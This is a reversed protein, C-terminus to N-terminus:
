VIIGNCPLSLTRNTEKVEEFPEDKLRSEKSPVPTSWDYKHDIVMGIEAVMENFLGELYRYDPTQDFKLSRCYTLYSQFQRPLDVCLKDFTTTLKKEMIKQYKQRRTDAQLNQWPLKGKLFYVLVYGLSELDDRRSLELGLHANLSAYRATGTLSKDDRYPIHSGDNSIYKKALGFDIVFVTSKTRGTGMLFNDPKIDRHLVQRSHLYELQKLMQLGLMITCKLSFRRSCENFLDELSSGLIEMAMFNYDGEKFFSFVRPIGKSFAEKDRHLEKYVQMEYQLHNMKAQEVKIAVAENTKVHLGLYIEGFAGSGLKKTLRYESITKGEM